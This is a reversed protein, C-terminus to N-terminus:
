LVPRHRDEWRLIQRLLAVPERPSRPFPWRAREVAALQLAVHHDAEGWLHVFRGITRAKRMLRSIATECLSASINGDSLQEIREVVWDVLLRAEVDGLRRKLSDTLSDDALLQRSQLCLTM